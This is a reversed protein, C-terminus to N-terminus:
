KNMRRTYLVSWLSAYLLNYLCCAVLVAALSVLTRTVLTSKMPDLSSVLITAIGNVLVFRMSLLFPLLFIMLVPANSLMMFFGHGISRFFDFFTKKSDNFFLASPPLIIMVGFFFPILVSKLAMDFTLAFGVCISFPVGIVYWALTAVYSSKEICKKHWCPWSSAILLFGFVGIIIPVSIFSAGLSRWEVTFPRLSVWKVIVVMGVVICWNKKVFGPLAARLENLIDIAFSKFSQWSYFISLSEKWSVLLNM